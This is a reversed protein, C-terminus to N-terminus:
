KLLAEDLLNIFDYTHKEALLFGEWFFEEFVKKLEEFYEEKMSRDWSGYYIKKELNFKGKRELVRKAAIYYLNASVGLLLDDESESAYYDFIVDTNFKRFGENRMMYVISYQNLMVAVHNINGSREVSSNNKPLTQSKIICYVNRSLRGNGDKFMHLLLIVFYFKLAWINLNDVDLEKKMQNFFKEFLEIQNYPPILDPSMGPAAVVSRVAGNWRQFRYKGLLLGNSIAL